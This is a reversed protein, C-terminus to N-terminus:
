KFIDDVLAIDSPNQGTKQIDNYNSRLKGKEKRFLKEFPQWSIREGKGLSLKNSMDHCFCALLQEGKRWKYNDDILGNEKAKAFYKFAEDTQLEAPLSDELVNKNAKAVSPNIEFDKYTKVRELFYDTDITNKTRIYCENSIAKIIIPIVNSNSINILFEVIQEEEYAQTVSCWDIDLYNKLTGNNISELAESFDKIVNRM